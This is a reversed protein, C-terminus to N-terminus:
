KNERIEEYLKLYDNYINESIQEDVHKIVECGLSSNFHNCDSFKCKINYREFAFFHHSLDSLSMNNMELSSFGPTDFLYGNEYKLLVVEKTTHRGRGSNVYLSDIKRDFNSDISNLLTSKGVGTQGIFAVKKDKIDNLLLPFSLVNKDNCNLKYCNINLKQYADIEKEIVEKQNENLLDWKSFVISFPISSFNLITLFKNLLYHNYENLTSSTLVFVNDVNSLKPRFLHNKRECIKFIHDDNDVLVVDGVTINSGNYSLKKRAKKFYTNNDKLSYLRYGSSTSQSVLYLDEM